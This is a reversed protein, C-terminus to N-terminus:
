PSLCTDLTDGKLTVAIKLTEPEPFDDFGSDSYDALAEHLAKYAVKEQSRQDDLQKRAKMVAATLDHSM